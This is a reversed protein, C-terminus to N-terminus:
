PCSSSVTGGVTFHPRYLYGSSLGSCISAGTVYYETSSHIKICRVNFGIIPTSCYDVGNTLSTNGTVSVNSNKKLYSGQNPTIVIVSSTTQPPPNPQTAVPSSPSSTPSTSSGPLVTGGSVSGTQGTNSSTPSGSPSGSTSNKIGEILVDGIKGIVSDLPNSGTQSPSAVTTNQGSGPYKQTTSDTSTTTTGNGGGSPYQSNTGSNTAGSQVTSGQQCNSSVSSRGVCGSILASRQVQPEVSCGAVAAFLMMSSLSLVSNRM